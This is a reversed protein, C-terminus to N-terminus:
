EERSFLRLFVNRVNALTGPQPPISDALRILVEAPVEGVLTFNIGDSTWNLVYGGCEARLWGQGSKLPVAEAGKLRYRAFRRAPQEFLSIVGLGDTFRLHAVKGQGSESLSAGDFVFGPPLAAPMRVTVGIEASLDELSLGQAFGAIVRVEKPVELRFHEAPVNKGPEFATFLTLSALSGDVRYQETRLIVGTGRDVWFRQAPHPCGRPVLEVIDTLRGTIEGTGGYQFRYNRSLLALGQEPDAGGNAQSPGAAVVREHPRYHWRHRGDDVIVLYPEQRSGLYELRSRGPARHFVKVMTADGSGAGWTFLVMTGTYTQSADAALARRLIEEAPSVPTAAATKGSSWGVMGLLLGLGVILRVAGRM